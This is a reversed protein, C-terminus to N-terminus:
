LTNWSGMTDAVQRPGHYARHAFQRRAAEKNTEYRSLYSQALNNGSEWHYMGKAYDILMPHYSKPIIPEDGAKAFAFSKGNVLAKFGLGLENWKTLLTAWNSSNLNLWMDTEASTTVILDNDAMNSSNAETDLTIIGTLNNIEVDAVTASWTVATTYAADSSNYRKLLLSDGIYPTSSTLTDYRVKTYQTSSDTLVTPKAVYRFTLLKGQSPAPVFSMEDGQIEFYQPYGQRYSNDTKRKTIIEHRQFPHVIKGGFEVTSVIDIFDSPLKLSEDGSDLFHSFNKEYCKTHYAFDEEAEELYKKTRTRHFGQNGEFNFGVLVRDILTEWIM